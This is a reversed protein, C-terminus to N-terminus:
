QVNVSINKGVAITQKSTEIPQYKGVPKFTDIIQMFLNIMRQDRMGEIASIGIVHIKTGLGVEFKVDKCIETLDVQTMLEANSINEVGFSPIGSAGFFLITIVIVLGKKWMNERM